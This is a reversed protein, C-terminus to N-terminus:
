TEARTWSPREAFHVNCRAPCTTPTLSTPPIMGALITSAMLSTSTMRTSFQQGNSHLSPNKTNSTCCYSPHSVGHLRQCTTCHCFKSALPKERSLQYKVKGCHCGGTWKAPFKEDDEHVRYPPNHKWEDEKRDTRAGSQFQHAEDAAGANEKGVHENVAGKHNHKDPMARSTQSTFARNCLFSLRTPTPVTRQTFLPSSTVIARLLPTRVFSNM